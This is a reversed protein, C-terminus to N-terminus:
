RLDPRDRLENPNSQGPALPFHRVLIADVADIATNLGDEFGVFTEDSWLRRRLEERLVVEGPRELLALLLQFPQEQLKILCGGKRLEGSRRDLEFPGFRLISAAVPLGASM